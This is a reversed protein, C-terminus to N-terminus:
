CRLKAILNSLFTDFDEFLAVEMALILYQRLAGVDASFEIKAKIYRPIEDDLYSRICFAIGRLRSEADKEDSFVKVLNFLTDENPNSVYSNVAKYKDLQSYRADYKYQSVILEAKTYNFGGGDSECDKLLTMYFYLSNLKVGKNFLRQRIFGKVEKTQIDLVEYLVNLPDSDIDVLKFGVREVFSIVFKKPNPKEFDGEVVYSGFLSPNPYVGESINLNIIYKAVVFKLFDSKKSIISYNQKSKLM